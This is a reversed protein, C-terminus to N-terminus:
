ARRATSRGTWRATSGSTGTARTPSSPGRSWTAVRRALAETRPDPSGHEGLLEETEELASEEARTLAVAPLAPLLLLLVTSLRSV